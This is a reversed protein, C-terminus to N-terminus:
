AKGPTGAYQSSVISRSKGRFGDKESHSILAFDIFPVSDSRRFVGPDVDSGDPMKTDSRHWFIERHPYNSAVISVTTM